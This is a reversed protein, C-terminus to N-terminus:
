SGIWQVNRLNLLKPRWTSIDLYIQEKNEWTEKTQVQKRICDNIKCELESFEFGITM